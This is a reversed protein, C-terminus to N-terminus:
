AAGMSRSLVAGNQDFRVVTTHQDTTGLVFFSRYKSAPRDFQNSAAIYEDILRQVQTEQVDQASVIQQGNRCVAIITCQM